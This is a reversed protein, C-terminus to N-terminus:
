LPEVVISFKAENLCGPPINKSPDPAKRLGSYFKKMWALVSKKTGEPAGDVKVGRDKLCTFKKAEKMEVKREKSKM